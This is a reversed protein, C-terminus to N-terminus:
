RLSVDMKMGDTQQMGQLMKVIQTESALTDPDLKVDKLTQFWQAVSNVFNNEANRKEVELKLIESLEEIDPLDPDDEELRDLGMIKLIRKYVPKLYSVGSKEDTVVCETVAMAVAETYTM